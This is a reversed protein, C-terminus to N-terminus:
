KAANDVVNALAQVMLTEDVPVALGPPAEISVWRADMELLGGASLPEAAAEDMEPALRDLAAGILEEVECPTAAVRLAGAEIRGLDLLNDVLRDLREVEQRGLRALNRCAELDGRLAATELNSLAVTIIALPTRLDHSLSHLLSSELTETM